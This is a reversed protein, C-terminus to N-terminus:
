FGILIKDPVPIETKTPRWLHLCHPHMNIYASKNPHYQIVVDEEDWFLDKISCMEEWTPCRDPLSVSVHEWGMGDSAVCKLPTSKGNLTVFFMGHNGFTSDSAGRGRKVRYKEPVHFM